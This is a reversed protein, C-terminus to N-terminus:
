YELNNGQKVIFDDDDDSSSSSSHSEYEYGFDEFEEEKKRFYGMFLLYCLLVNDVFFHTYTCKQRRQDEQLNKELM